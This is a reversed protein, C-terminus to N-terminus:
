TGQCTGANNCNFGACCNGHSNPPACTQGNTRCSAAGAATATQISTILPLTVAAIGIRRILERRTTHPLWGRKSSPAELLRTEELQKIALWVTEEPVAVSMKRAMLQSMKPVTTRGDCFKWVRAATENLCHAQHNKEDYVLTEGALEKVILSSKRAKPALQNKRTM